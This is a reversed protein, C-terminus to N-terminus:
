ATTAEWGNRVGVPVTAQDISQAQPLKPPNDKKHVFPITHTAEAYHGSLLIKMRITTKKKVFAVMPCVTRRTSKQMSWWVGYRMQVFLNSIGTTSIDAWALIKLEFPMDLRITDLKDTYFRYLITRSRLYKVDDM